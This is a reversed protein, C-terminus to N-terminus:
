IPVVAAYRLFFELLPSFISSIRTFFGVPLPLPPSLGVLMGIDASHFKILSKVHEM